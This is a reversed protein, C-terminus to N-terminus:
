YVVAPGPIPYKFRYWTEASTSGLMVAIRLGRVIRFGTALSPRPYTALNNGHPQGSACATGSTYSSSNHVSRHEIVPFQM